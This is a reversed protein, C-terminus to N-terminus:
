TAPHKPSRLLRQHVWTAAELAYYSKSAAALQPQQPGKLFSQPPPSPPVSSLHTQHPRKQPLKSPHSDRWETTVLFTKYSLAPPQLHIWSLSTPSSWCISQHGQFFFLMLSPKPDSILSQSIPSSLFSQSPSPRLSVCSLLSPQQLIQDQHFNASPLVPM